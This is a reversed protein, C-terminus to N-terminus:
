LVGGQFGRLTMESTDIVPSPHETMVVFSLGNQRAAEIIDALSGTSHGGLQSHVHIVGAYDKFDDAQGAVRGANLAQIERRLRALQFRRYAFPLQSLVIIGLLLLTLKKWRKLPKM